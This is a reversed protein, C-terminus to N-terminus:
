PKVQALCSASMMNGCEICGLMIMCGSVQQKDKENMRSLLDLM